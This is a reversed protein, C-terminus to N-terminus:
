TLNMTALWEGRALKALYGNKLEDSGHARLCEYAGHLLGPYMTWGHNAAAIMEGLAADLLAPLGQGGDDPHCPLAPWGGEVFAAYAERYGAPTRVEGDAWTCGQLDAAGNIPALVGSAFKGAEELVARATDADLEAFAPIAAWGAPAQLVDEIVFQMDRLPPTYSWM